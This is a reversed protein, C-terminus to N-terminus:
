LEHLVRSQHSVTDYGHERYIHRLRPAVKLIAHDHRYVNKIDEEVYYSNDHISNLITQSLDRV